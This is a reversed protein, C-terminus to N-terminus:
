TLARSRAIPAYIVSAYFLSFDHLFRAPSPPLFLSRSSPSTIAADRNGGPTNRLYWGSLRRAAREHGRKMTEPLSAYNRRIQARVLRSETPGCAALNLLDVSNAPRDM